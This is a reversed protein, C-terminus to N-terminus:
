ARGYVCASIEDTVRQGGREGTLIVASRLAAAGACDQGQGCVTGALVIVM